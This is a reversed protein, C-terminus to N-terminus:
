LPLHQAITSGREMQNSAKGGYTNAITASIFARQTLVAGKPPGTTGSTDLPLLLETMFIM